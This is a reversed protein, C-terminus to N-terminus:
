NAFKTTLRSNVEHPKLITGSIPVNDHTKCLIKFMVNKSLVAHNIKYPLIKYMKTDLLM